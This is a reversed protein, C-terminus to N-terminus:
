GDSEQGVMNHTGAALVYVKEKFRTCLWDKEFTCAM